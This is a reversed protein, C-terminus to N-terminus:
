RISFPSGDNSLTGNFIQIRKGIRYISANQSWFDAHTTHTDNTSPVDKLSGQQEPRLLVIAPQLVDVTM